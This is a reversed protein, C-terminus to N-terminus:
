LRYHIPREYRGDNERFISIQKGDHSWRFNQGYSIPDFSIDWAEILGEAELAANLTEFWNQKVTM